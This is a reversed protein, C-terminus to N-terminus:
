HGPAVASYGPLVPPLVFSSKHIHPSYYRTNIGSRKFRQALKRFFEEDYRLNENTAWGFGIAGGYYSPVVALYSTASAFYSGRRETMEKLFNPFLFPMGIQNVLIGNKGLRNKCAEYFKKSYLKIAPGIRDTSDVLIIDFNEKSTAVYRAGDGIVIEVRPDDFAGDSIAPMYKRCSEIVHRDVEVLTVKEVPHKLVERLTGGDGGGIILIRRAKKHTFLAVHSIMEHYIYEDRQTLQMDGGLFLALGYAETDLIEIVQYNTRLRFLPRKILYSLKVSGYAHDTHWKQKKM